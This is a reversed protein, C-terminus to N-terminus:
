LYMGLLAEWHSKKPCFHGIFTRRKLFALVIRECTNYKGDMKSIDCSM